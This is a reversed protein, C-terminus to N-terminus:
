PTTDETTLTVRVTRWRHPADFAHREAEAAARSRHMVPTADRIELLVEDTLLPALVVLWVDLSETM